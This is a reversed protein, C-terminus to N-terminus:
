NTADDPRKGAAQAGGAEADRRMSGEDGRVESELASVRAEAQVKQKATPRGALVDRWAELKTRTDVRAIRDVSQAETFLQDQLDKVRKAAAKAESGKGEWDLVAGWARIREVKPRRGKEVAEAADVLRRTEARRWYAVRKEARRGEDSKPYLKAVEDWQNLKDRASVQPDEDAKAAAEVLRVKAANKWRDVAKHAYATQEQARKIFAQWEALKQEDSVSPDQELKLLGYFTLVTGTKNAGGDDQAWAQGGLPLAILALMSLARRM